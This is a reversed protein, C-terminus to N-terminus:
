LGKNDKTFAGIQKLEKDFVQTRLLEMDKSFEYITANLTDMVSISGDPSVCTQVDSVSSSDYASDTNYFESIENRRNAPIQQVSPNNPITYDPLGLSFAFGNEKAYRHAASGDECILLIYDKLTTGMGDFLAYAAIDTVSPPVVLYRVGLEFAVSEISTVTEPLTVSRLRYDGMAPFARNGISTVGYPVIVDILGSTESSFGTLKGNEDINFIYDDYDTAEVPSGAVFVFMAALVALAVVLTKKCVCYASLRVWRM